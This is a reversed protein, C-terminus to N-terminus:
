YNAKTPDVRRNTRRVNQHGKFNPTVNLLIRAGSEYKASGSLKFYDYVKMGRSLM